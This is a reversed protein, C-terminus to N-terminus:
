APHTRASGDGSTDPAKLVQLRELTHLQGDTWLALAVYSIIVGVLAVFAIDSAPESALWSYGRAEAAM